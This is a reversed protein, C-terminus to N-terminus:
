KFIDRAYFFRRGGYLSAELVTSFVNRYLTYSLRQVSLVRRSSVDVCVCVWAGVCVCVWAGVCVCGRVSVCEGVCGGVGARVCACM